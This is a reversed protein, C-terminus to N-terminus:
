RAALAPRSAGGIARTQNGAGRQQGQMESILGQLEQTQRALESVAQAAQGMAQANEGSISAVQEISRNIEESASSQEESATAISRVQDSAQDVLAVIDKLSEGSRGALGTAEEITKASRDVNDINKRAGDQIGRIADGVEKTATMTKEALKRVEDAVV